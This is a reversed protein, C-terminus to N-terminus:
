VNSIRTFRVIRAQGLTPLAVEGAHVFRRWPVRRSVAGITPGAWVLVVGEPGLVPSLKPLLREWGGMARTALVRVPGLPELDVANQVNTELVSGERLGAARLADRLFAAKKPSSEVLVVRLGPRTVALPIGPYGNGSGLDVLVGAVGRDLLGAGALSEAIHREVFTAPDRIATLHLRDNAAVVARVHAALAAVQGPGIPEGLRDAAAQIASDLDFTSFLSM